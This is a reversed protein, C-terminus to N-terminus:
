GVRLIVGKRVLEKFGQVNVTITYLSPRLLPANAVGVDNTKLTRVVNGTETGSITVTAGPIVAGSADMVTIDMQGTSTQAWSPPVCVMSAIFAVLLVARFSASKLAGMNAGMFNIKQGWVGLKRCTSKWV